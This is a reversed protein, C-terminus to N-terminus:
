GPTVHWLLHFDPPRSTLSIALINGGELPQNRGHRTGQSGLYRSGNCHLMDIIVSVSLDPSSLITVVPDFPPTRTTSPLTSLSVPAPLNTTAGFRSSATTSTPSRTMITRM